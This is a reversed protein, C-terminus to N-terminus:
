NVLRKFGDDGFKSWFRPLYEYRMQDVVIGVVLKPRDDPTKSEQGHLPLGSLIFLFGFIIISLYKNM